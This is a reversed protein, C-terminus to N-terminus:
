GTQHTTRSSSGLVYSPPDLYPHAAKRISATTELLHAYPQLGEANELIIKAVATLPVALIAGLPGWMWGWFLMSLLVTLPSLGITRGLLRPELVNGCVIAIVQYSLAVAVATGPGRSLLAVGIAPVMAIPVGIAPLFHFLFLVLALLLALEVHLLRLVAYALVGALLSVLVKVVLYRQVEHIVRNIRAFQADANRVFARLKDGLLTVECLTFFAVLLMVVILSAAGAFTDAAGMITQAFHEGQLIPSLPHSVDHVGHRLLWRAVDADADAFSAAHRPLFASLDGAAAVFISGLAALGAVDLALALVAVVIPPVRRRLLFTVVPSSIAAAMMGLLVPVLLDRALKLGALIIVASALGVLIGTRKSRM